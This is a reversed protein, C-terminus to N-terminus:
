KTNKYNTLWAKMKKTRLYDPHAFNSIGAEAIFPIDEMIGHRHKLGMVYFASVDELAEPTYYYAPNFTAFMYSCLQKLQKGWEFDTRMPIKNTRVEVTKQNLQSIIIGFTEKSLSFDKLVGLQREMDKDSSSETPDSLLKLFDLGWIQVELKDAIDVLDYATNFATNPIVQFRQLTDAMETDQALQEKVLQKINAQAKLREPINEILEIQHITSLDMSLTNSILRNAIVKHHMEKEFYACKFQPNQKLIELCLWVSWMTKMSGVDGGLGMLEGLQFGGLKDIVPVSTKFSNSENVSDFMMQTTSPFEVKTEQFNISKVMKLGEAANGENLYDIAITLTDVARLRNKNHKLHKLIQTYKTSWDKAHLKAYFGKHTMITELATKIHRNDVEDLLMTVDDLSSGLAHLENFKNLILIAYRNSLLSMSTFNSLYEPLLWLLGLIRHENELALQELNNPMMEGAVQM